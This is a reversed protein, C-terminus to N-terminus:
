WGLTSFVTGNGINKSIWFNDYGKGYFGGGNLKLGFGIEINVGALDPAGQPARVFEFKTTLTSVNKGGWAAGVIVENPLTIVTEGKAPLEFEGMYTDNCTVKVFFGGSGRLAKISIADINTNERFLTSGQSYVSFHKAVRGTYQPTPPPSPQQPPTPPTPAITTTTTTTTTSTTTVVIQRIPITQPVSTPPTTTIQSTSPVTNITPITQPPPPTTTQQPPQTTNTAVPPVTTNTTTVNTTTNTTTNSQQPQVKCGGFDYLSDISVKSVSLLFKFTLEVEIVQPAKYKDTIGGNLGIEWPANDPTTFTMSEIFGQKDKYMDGVTMKIFPATAKLSGGSWRQPYALRALEGLRKWAAAHESATESFVKFNITVSREIHGYSYFPIPNGIFTKSEWNPSFTESLNTITARFYIVNSTALGSFKFPIYDLDDATKPGSLTPVIINGNANASAPNLANLLDGKLGGGFGRAIKNNYLQINAASGSPITATKSYVKQETYVNGKISQITRLNLNSIPLNRPAPRNNKPTRFNPDQKLTSELFDSLDNRDTVVLNTYDKSKSYPASSNYEGGSKALNRAAENRSGFLKKRLAVKAAEVAGSILRRGAEENFGGRINQTLFKSFARNSQADKIKQLTLPLENEKGKLFIPNEVLRTPIVDEPPKIGLTAVKQVFRAVKGFIGRGGKSTGGTAFRMQEVMKTTRNQMRALDTGYLAPGSLLTLPRIGTLEQEFRTEKKTQSFRKRLGKQVLYSPYLLPNRPRYDLDKSNRPAYKQEPTITTPIQPTRFLELITRGM